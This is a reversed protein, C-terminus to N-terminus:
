SSKRGSIRQSIDQLQTQLLEATGDNLDEAFSLDVVLCEVETKSRTTWKEDTSHFFARSTAKKQSEAEISKSLFSYTLKSNFDLM